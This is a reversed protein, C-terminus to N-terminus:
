PLSIRRSKQTEGQCLRNMTELDMRTRPFFSTAQQYAQYLIHFTKMNNNPTISM